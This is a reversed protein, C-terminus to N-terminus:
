KTGEETQAVAEKAEAPEVALVTEVAKAAAANEIEKRAKPPLVSSNASAFELIKSTVALIKGVIVAAKNDLDTPTLDKVKDIVKKLATLLTNVCVVVLACVLLATDLNSLLKTLLEKM